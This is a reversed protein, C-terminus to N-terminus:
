DDDDDGGRGHGGSDDGDDDDSGDSDDDDDDGSDRSADDDDEHELKRVVLEGAVLDCTMEVFDGSALGALSFGATATCTVTRTGSVVRVPSLSTLTGKGEGEDDDARPSTSSATLPRSSVISVNRALVRPGHGRARLTAGRLEIRQGIRILSMSGNVRLAVVQRQSWVSVLNSAEDKLAVTGRLRLSSQGEATAPVLLLTATLALLLFRPPM